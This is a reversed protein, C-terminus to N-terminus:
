KAHSLDLEIGDVWVRIDESLAPNEEEISDAYSLLAMRSAIGYADKKTPNLVFYKMILGTM